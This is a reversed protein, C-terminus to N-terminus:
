LVVLPARIVKFKDTPTKPRESLAGHEEVRCCSAEYRRTKPGFKFGIEMVWLNSTLTLLKISVM